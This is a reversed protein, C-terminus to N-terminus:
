KNKRPSFDLNTHSFRSEFKRELTLLNRPGTYNYPEVASNNDYRIVVRILNHVVNSKTKNPTGAHRNIIYTYLIVTPKERSNYQQGLLTVVVMM